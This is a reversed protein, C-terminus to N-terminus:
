CDKGFFITIPFSVPCSQSIFTPDGLASSCFSKTTPSPGPMHRTRHHKKPQRHHKRVWWQKQIPRPQCHNDRKDAMSSHSRRTPSHPTQSQQEHGSCFQIRDAGPRPSAAAARPQWVARPCGRHRGAPLAPAAPRPLRPQCLAPPGATNKLSNTQTKHESNDEQM